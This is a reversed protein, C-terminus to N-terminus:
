GRLLSLVGQPASNAQALMSTGAQQLIQYKTRNTGEAAMDVDRIVSEAAALNEASLDTNEMAHSIRNQAAGIDGFSSNLTGVATDLSTLAAQWEAGTGNGTFTLADLNLGSSATTLNINSLRILDDATYSGSSRVRFSGGNSGADVQVIKAKASGAATGDYVTFDASLNLTLGFSDFTINQAGDSIGTITQVVSGFTVTVEGSSSGDGITYDGAAVGSLTASYAGTGSLQRLTNMASVNTSIRMAM